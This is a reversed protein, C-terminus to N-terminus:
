KGERMTTSVYWVAEDYGLGGHVMAERLAANYKEAEVPFHNATCYGLEVVYRLM